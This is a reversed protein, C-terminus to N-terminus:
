VLGQAPIKGCIRHPYNFYIEGMKTEEGSGNGIAVWAEKGVPDAAPASTTSSGQCGMQIPLVADRVSLHRWLITPAVSGESLPTPVGLPSTLPYKM